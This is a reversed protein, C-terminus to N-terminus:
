VRRGRRDCKSEVEAALHDAEFLDAKVISPNFLGRVYNGRFLSNLRRELASPEGCARGRLVNGVGEVDFRLRCYVLEPEQRRAVPDESFVAREPEEVGVTGWGAGTGWGRLPHPSRPTPFGWAM